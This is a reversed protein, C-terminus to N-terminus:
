LNVVWRRFLEVIIRWRGEKVEVVDHRKLTKLAEQITIEDLNTAQAIADISLGEPHPAISRLITQQGSAGQAAQGWIGTFYYRGRKFFESDNIVAEVDETTFVPARSQGMEFVQDNYCRVLQFGVLQVLYPQGATLAHIQDLAEPKYDLLFNEDPNALIQRTAARKLFAVQIPIVSAFFPQFYDATMEELTHLGALAFAIKPSMQVLGRLYGIFDNPIKGAEIMEEIKEFEDLAIILGVELNAEIQKLYREFTRYPLKLLDADNPPPLKVTQFIADSIAMLVEGVGQPSNGSRLLNVYAVKVGSGLCNAANLLISTKGMRRHGYLIVSQLQHTMVWLEELQRMTEERGVFLYGQVPDGIVYPNRVPESISITGVKSALSLLYKQGNQAISVIIGREAKPLTDKKDLINKLEGIARNLAFSKASRSVSGEVVLLDELVRRLSSIAEWTTPRLLPEQFSPPVLCRAMTMTTREKSGDFTDLMQALTFMEEGYPLSRVVAFAETAKKPNNKHLYWFGAAAARAPTDLRTETETLKITDSLSASASYVLKWKYPDKALQAVRFVVQESPMEALVCNVAKTVPIFQITYALLQNINHLGMEWDQKLWNKLRSYLYPLPLITSHPFHYNRSRTKAFAIGVLWNDPRFITILSAVIGALMMGIQQLREILATVNGILIELVIWLIMGGVILLILPKTLDRGNIESSVMEDSTEDTIEEVMQNGVSLGITFAVNLALSLAMGIIGGYVLLYVIFILVRGGISVVISLSALSSAINFALSALLGISISFSVGTAVAIAVGFGVCSVLSFVIGGSIGLLLNLWNFSIDVIQFIVVMVLPLVVILTLGQLLLLRQIPNNRLLKWRKRWTIRKYLVFGGGFTQEYWLLAQPFFFVWYLLRLYDLPNWLSLPRKLKPALDLRPVPSQQNM